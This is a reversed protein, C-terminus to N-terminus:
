KHPTHDEFFLEWGRADMWFAGITAIVAVVFVPTEWTSNHALLYGAWVYLSLLFACVLYDRM